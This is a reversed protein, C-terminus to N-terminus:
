AAQPSLSAVAKDTPIVNTSASLTLKAGTEATAVPAADAVRAPSPQTAAVEDARAASPASSPSGKAELEAVRKELQEVRDLLMRERETLGPASAEPKAPVAKAPPVSKDKEDDAMLSAPSAFICLLSACIMLRSRRKQIFVLM